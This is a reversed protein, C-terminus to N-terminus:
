RPSFALQPESVGKLEFRGLEDLPRSTLKAFADSLVVSRGAKSAIGELRAALNVADGICTFDLRNAGGINGYAIQGPHLAVGFAIEPHGGVAREANVRALAEFAERTADLAADCKRRAEDEGKYPFIALLGDGIFKLVEGGRSSIPPIQCGFLANLAGIVQAPTSRQTLATFGRLDSFWVVADISETDGLQIKGSLIRAGADHGVYTNLLNTSTRLLAFIEGVRSLPAMVADIAEAHERTFGGALKTVFAVVHNEGTLFRLPSALLETGGDRAIMSVMSDPDDPTAVRRVTEGTRCAEAMPSQTFDPSQLWAWSRELVKIPEGPSWRFSRGAVNPHLTRVFAEAGTVPVGAAALGDCAAALAEMPSAPKGRVLYEVVGRVDIVREDYRLLFPSGRPEGDRATM